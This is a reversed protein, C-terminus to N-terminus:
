EGRFLIQLTKLLIGLDLLLSRNKLYYLDYQFKEQSDMTTRAYRFKIQAWGTFGPKIIHRLQYHPIEKELKKVFEPREPRPGILSIDGRLVNLMQPLEDLHIKRLIQGVKTARTDNKVAWAPGDKEADQKMTRFKYLWFVKGEKGYRQQKYFIKGKDEKKILLAIALWFPSSILIILIALVLETLRKIKDYANKEGEALNSLFWEQDIFDVPIKNFIIEYATALNLFNIKLDLCGYLEKVLIKQQNINQAIILTNIKDKKIQQSLSQSVNIFKVFRYGLQPNNKIENILKDTWLNKGLIGVQKLFLASFLWYFIQRWILILVGLLVINVLLNTKPTIGFLPVTYFFFVGVALCVALCAGLRAIFASKPNALDLDYLGFIYFLTLWVFYLISFPLLHQFFIPWSFNPSFRWYVMILLSVYAFIVDGLFLSVKRIKQKM